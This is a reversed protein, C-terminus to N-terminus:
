PSVQQQQQTVGVIKISSPNVGAAKALALVIQDKQAAFEEPTLALNVNGV